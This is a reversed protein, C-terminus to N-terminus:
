MFTPFPSYLSLYGKCRVYVAILRRHAATLRYFTPTKSYYSLHRQQGKPSLAHTHINSETLYLSGTFVYKTEADVM